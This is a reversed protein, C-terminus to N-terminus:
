RFVCNYPIMFPDAGYDALTRLSGLEGYKAALWFANAGIAQHRISYDASFRRGPTGRVVTFNPDAGYALLVGVLAEQERLVAAHLTSYGAEADNPDARELLLEALAGDQGRQSIGTTHM